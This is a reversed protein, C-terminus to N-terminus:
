QESVLLENVSEKCGWPSCCALGGWGEGDGQSVLNMNLSHVTLSHVIAVALPYILVWLIIGM